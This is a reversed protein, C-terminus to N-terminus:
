SYDSYQSTDLLVLNYSTGNEQMIIALMKTVEGTDNSIKALSDKNKNIQISYNEDTTYILKDSTNSSPQVNVLDNYQMTVLANANAISTQTYSESLSNYEPQEPESLSYLKNQALQTTSTETVTAGPMQGVSYALMDSTSLSISSPGSWPEFQTKRLLNKTYTVLTTKQSTDSHDNTMTNYLEGFTIRIDVINPRMNFNIDNQDSGKIVEVNAIYGVRIQWLGSCEVSCLLPQSYTAYVNAGTEEDTDIIPVTMALIKVLPWIIRKKYAEEDLRDPNCLRTTISYSSQYTSNQWIMPFDVKSGSLLRGLGRNALFNEVGGFIRGFIDTGLGAIEGLIGGGEKMMGTIKDLAERGTRAGTMLRLERITSSGVNALEEFKSMAYENSFSESITTENLYAVLLGRSGDSMQLGLGSKESVSNVIEIWKSIGKSHDAKYLHLSKEVEAVNMPYAPTIRCMPMHGLKKHADIDDVELGTAIRPPLGIINDYDSLYKTNETEFSMTTSM